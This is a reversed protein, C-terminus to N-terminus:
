QGDSYVSSYIQQGRWIMVVALTTIGIYIDEVFVRTLENCPEGDDYCKNLALFIEVIEKIFTQLLCVAIYGYLVQQYKDWYLSDLMEGMAEWEIAIAPWIASVLFVDNEICDATYVYLM